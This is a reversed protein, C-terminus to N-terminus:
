SEGAPFRWESILTVPLPAHLSAAYSLAPLKHAYIPASWGWTPHADERGYLVEGARVLSAHLGELPSGSGPSLNQVALCIWGFPSEVEIQLGAESLRWPWDPLLWHLRARVAPRSRGLPLLQDEVRWLHDGPCTVTRRHRVGLHQYGDHQAAIRRGTGARNNEGALREAQAWDLYLFRGVRTMQDCGEVTLTNHVATRTLSNDWPPAANYLYSGADQAVNL